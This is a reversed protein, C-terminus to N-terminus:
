PSAPIDYIQGLFRAEAFFQGTSDLNIKDTPISLEIQLRQILRTLHKIQTDSFPRRDGNGVLCISITGKSWDQADVPKAAALQELWRYGVHTVGDGIGNGNGILFHFGLGDLGLRKHEREIREVTGAPQNLQQISISTWQSQKIGNFIPDNTPRENFSSLEVLLMSSKFEQNGVQLAFLVSPIILFFAIWVFQTRSLMRASNNKLADM